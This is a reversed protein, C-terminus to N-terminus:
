GGAGFPNREPAEDHHISGLLSRMLKNLVPQRHRLWINLPEPKAGLAAKPELATRGLSVKAAGLAIGDAVTQQLLRLYIPLDQAAQRDFGIHYGIATDASDRLSVVFGLLRDESHVTAFRVRDGAARALAPWYDPGLTVPRVAANEHVALYLAQLPRAIAAVDNVHEIRLGAEDIPKLIRSRINKRYKASLATLYDEHQRWRPDLKLVMNPETEVSRYGLERLLASDRLEGASLDKVLVFDTSGSHKEARRTRYLAEGIGHWVEREASLGPRISLGHSGYSLLNGAVLARAQVREAVSRTLRRTLGKLGTAPKDEHLRGGDLEVWQMSLAAVPELDRYLLAYRPDLNSPRVSELMRHYDRSCLFGRHATVADWHEPNLFDIREALAIRLPAAQRRFRVRALAAGLPNPM